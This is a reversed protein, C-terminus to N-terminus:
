KTVGELRERLLARAKHLRSKVTGINILLIRAIEEYSMGEVDRLVLVERHQADLSVLASQILEQREKNELIEPPLPGDEAIEQKMEGEGTAVPDDMSKLRVKDRNMIKLRNRSLNVTIRYLWTFIGAEQRFEKIARWARVFVEQAVDNAEDYNNLLRYAVNFVKRQFKLVLEDFAGPSGSKCRCILEFDETQGM